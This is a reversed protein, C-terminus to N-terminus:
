FIGQFTQQAKSSTFRRFAQFAVNELSIASNEIKEIKPEHHESPSEKKQESCVLYGPALLRFFVVFFPPLRLIEIGVSAAALKRRPLKKKM